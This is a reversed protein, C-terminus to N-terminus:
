ELSRKYNNLCFDCEVWNHPHNGLEYGICGWGPRPTKSKLFELFKWTDKGMM